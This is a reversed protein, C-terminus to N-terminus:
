LGEHAFSYLENEASITHHAVIAGGEKAVFSHGVYTYQTLTAHPQMSSVFHEQKQDDLWYLHLEQSQENTFTVTKSLVAAAQKAKREQAKSSARNENWRKDNWVWLNAGYKEGELVPCAGHLSDPDMQGEPTQSYFLIADGAHPLVRLKSRCTDTITSEWSHKTFIDAKIASVHEETGQLPDTQVDGGRPFVTEGGLTVNSLYLFV